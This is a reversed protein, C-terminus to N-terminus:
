ISLKRKLYLCVPLALFIGIIDAVVDAFSATRQPVFWAQGAEIALALFLALVIYLYWRSGLSLYFAVTLFVFALVHYLKDLHNETHPLPSPYFAGLLIVLLGAISIVRFIRRDIPM